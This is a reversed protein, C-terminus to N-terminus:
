PRTFFPELHYERKYVTIAEVVSDLNLDGFFDPPEAIATTIRDEPTEFLISHFAM